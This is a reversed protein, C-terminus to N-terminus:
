IPLDEDDDEEVDEFGEEDQAQDQQTQDEEDQMQAKDFGEEAQIQTEDQTEEQGGQMQTEDQMEEQSGDMQTQIQPQTQVQDGESDGGILARSSIIDNDLFKKAVHKVLEEAIDFDGFLKKLDEGTEDKVKKSYANILSKPVDITTRVKYTDEVQFVNENINPTKDKSVKKDTRHSEFNQIRKM